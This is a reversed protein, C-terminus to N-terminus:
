YKLHLYVLQQCVRNLYPRKFCDPVRQATDMPNMGMVELENTDLNIIVMEGLGDSAAKL